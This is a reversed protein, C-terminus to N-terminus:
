KNRRWIQKGGRKHLEKHLNTHREKGVNKSGEIFTTTVGYFADEGEILEVIVYRNTGNKKVLMLRGNTQEVAVDFHRAVDEIMEIEDRYGLRVARERRQPGLHLAGYGDTGTEGLELRIPKESLRGGSAEAMEKSIRGFDITGDSSTLFSRGGIKVIQGPKTKGVGGGSRLVSPDLARKPDRVATFATGTGVAFGSLNFARDLYSQQNLIRNGALKGHQYVNGADDESVGPQGLSPLNYRGRAVDGPLTIADKAGTWMDSLVRLVALSWNGQRDRHLPIFHATHGDYSREYNQLADLAKAQDPAEVEFTGGSTEIEFTPM